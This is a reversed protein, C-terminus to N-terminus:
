SRRPTASSREVWRSGSASDAPSTRRSRDLHETLDLIRAAEDVKQEIEQRPRKALQLAFAMNERVTMHPYLAYSQFVMALERDKPSLDNM